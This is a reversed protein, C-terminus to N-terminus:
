ARGLAEEALEAEIARKNNEKSLRWVNESGVLLNWGAATLEWRHLPANRRVLGYKQLEGLRTKRKGVKSFPLDGANRAMEALTAYRPRTIFRSITGPQFIRDAFRYVEALPAHGTMRDSMGGARNTAGTRNRRWPSMVDRMAKPMREDARAIKEGHHSFPDTPNPNSRSVSVSKRAVEYIFKTDPDGLDRYKTESVKVYPGLDQKYTAGRVSTRKATFWFTEGVNLESFARDGYARNTTTRKSRSAVYGGTRQLHHPFPGKPHSRRWSARASRLSMAVAQSASRGSRIEAAINTRLASESHGSHLPM